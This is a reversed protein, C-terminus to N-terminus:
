LNLYFYVYIAIRMNERCQFMPHIKRGTKKTNRNMHVKLPQGSNMSSNKLVQVNLNQETKIILTISDRAEKYTFKLRYEESNGKLINKSTPNSPWRYSHKNPEQYLNFVHIREKVIKAFIKGSPNAKQCRKEQFDLLWIVKYCLATGPVWTFCGCYSKEM